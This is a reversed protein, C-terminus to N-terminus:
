KDFRALYHFAQKAAEDPHMDAASLDVTFWGAYNIEDFARFVAGFDVVGTGPVVIAGSDDGAVDEIHVHRIHKGLTKISDILNDGALHFHGTNFTMGVANSKIRALVEVTEATNSVVMGPRPDFLVAPWKKKELFAATKQLCNVFRSVAEERTMGDEIVGGAMTSVTASGIDKALQVADLTHQYREERLVHDSEIWSPRFEDRLAKMSTADVNSVALRNQALASRVARRDAETMTPPYAHPSDAIVEIGSFGAVAVHRVAQALKLRHFASSSLAIKRM